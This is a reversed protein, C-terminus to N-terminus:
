ILKGAGYVKTVVRPVKMQAWAMFRQGKRQLSNDMSSHELLSSMEFLGIENSIEFYKM